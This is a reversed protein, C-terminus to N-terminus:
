NKNFLLGEGKKTVCFRISTDGKKPELWYKKDNIIKNYDCSQIKKFKSYPELCTYLEVCDDNLLCTISKKGIDIKKDFNKDPYLNNLEWIIEWLGSHDEKGLILIIRDISQIKKM